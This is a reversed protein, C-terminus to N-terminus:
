EADDPAYLAQLRVLHDYRKMATEEALSFLKAAREPFANLLSAYRSESKIFDQYGAAPAKSDLIFPNKGAHMHTWCAVIALEVYRSIVTAVAAGAVGLAPFGLLGFILVFDLSANKLRGKTFAALPLTFLQISCLFLPLLKQWYAPDGANRTCLVM